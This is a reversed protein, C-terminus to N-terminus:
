ESLYLRTAEKIDSIAEAIDKEGTFYGQAENMIMETLMKDEKYPTRVTACLELFGKKEDPTPMGGSLKENRDYEGGVIGMYLNEDYENAIANLAATNVSFGDRNDTQQLEDSLMLKVFDRASEAMKSKANIGLINAPIYVNEVQGPLHIAAADGAKRMGMVPISLSSYGTLVEEYTYARGFAWHYLNNITNRKATEVFVSGTGLSLNGGKIVDDELQYSKSPTDSIEKISELFTKLGLEDIEGNQIWAPACSPFFTRLLSEASKNGMLPKDPHAKAFAAVSQLDKIEDTNGKGTLLVPLGFKTPVAFIGKHNQYTNIVSANMTKEADVEKLVGSLDELVGKEIYSDVPMGDLLIVDPGEGNLLETNLTRILDSQVAAGDDEMAVQINVRTDTHSRQFEGAAQRLSRNERLTFVVLEKEPLSAVTKDYKYKYLQTDSASNVGSMYFAGDKGELLSSFFISPITMSTLEGDVLKEWMSGGDALRFIGNQNYLYVAGEAGGAIQTNDAFSDFSATRILKGDELDYCNVAGAGSDILYLKHGSPVFGFSTGNGEISYFRKFSGDSGYQAVGKTSNGALLDGSDTVAFGEAWLKSDPTGNENRWDMKVISLTGDDEQRYVNNEYEKYNATLLYTTGDKGYYLNNLFQNEPISWSVEEEKWREGNITNYRAYKTGEKDLLYYADFSGDPRQLMNTPTKGELPFKLQSEVYRGMARDTEEGGRACATIFLMCIVLMVVAGRKAARNYKCDKMDM